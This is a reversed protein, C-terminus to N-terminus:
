AVENSRRKSYRGFLASPPPTTGLSGGWTLSESEFSGEFQGARPATTKSFTWSRYRSPRGKANFSAEKSIAGESLTPTTPRVPAPLDDNNMARNRKTSTQPPRTRTSPTSVEVNPRVISRRRSQRMGWSATSMCPVPLIFQSGKPSYESSTTPSAKSVTPRGRDHRWWVKTVLSPSAVERLAPSRWNSARARQRKRRDETTHKSSAVAWTSEAVSTLIWRTMERSNRWEVRRAMACRRWVTM